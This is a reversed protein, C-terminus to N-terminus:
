SPRCTVRETEGGENILTGSVSRPDSAPAACSQTQTNNHQQTTLILNILCIISKLCRSREELCHSSRTTPRDAAPSSTVVTKQKNNQNIEDDYSSYSVIHPPSLSLKSKFSRHQEQVHSMRFIHGSRLTKEELCMFLM